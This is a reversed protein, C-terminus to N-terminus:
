RWMCKTKLLVIYKLEQTWDQCEEQCLGQTYWSIKFDVPFLAVTDVLVGSLSPDNSHHQPLLWLQRTFSEVSVEVSVWRPSSEHGAATALAWWSFSLESGEKLSKGIFLWQQKSYDEGREKGGQLPMVEKRALHFIGKCSFFLLIGTTATKKSDKFSSASAKKKKIPRSGSCAYLLVETSTETLRECACSQKSGLM